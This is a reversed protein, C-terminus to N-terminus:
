QHALGHKTGVLKMDYSDPGWHDRELFNKQLNFADLSCHM